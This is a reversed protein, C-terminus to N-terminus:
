PARRSSWTSRRIPPAACAFSAPRRWCKPSASRGPKCGLAAGVEQNLSGPVCINTSFAYYIRGV